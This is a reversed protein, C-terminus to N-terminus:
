GEDLKQGGPRKRASGDADGQATAPRHHHIASPRTRWNRTTTKTCSDLHRSRPDVLSPARARIQNNKLQKRRQILCIYVM